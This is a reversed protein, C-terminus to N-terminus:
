FLDEDTDDGGRRVRATGRSTGPLRRPLPTPAAPPGNMAGGLDIGRAAAFSRRVTARDLRGVETRPLREVILYDVPRKFPPLGAAIVFETLDGATPRTGPRAVLAAVVQQGGRGPLSVVAADAVHPHTALVDEVERPYVTFGAVTITEAARDVLHLEGADDLYGIDATRFWGDEDPGGSGDPWYGSFLTRGRVEIPGLGGGPDAVEVLDTIGDLIELSPAPRDAAPHEEDGEDAGESPDEEEADATHGSAEAREAAEVHTATVAATRDTDITNGGADAPPVEIGAEEQMLHNDIRLEVGPYPLGVSGPRPAATMLTSTIAGAAESIGYGERVAQGTAARIASFDLPDLPSSGSTMLRVTGLGREFGAVRDFQRYLTPEAPLMSVRHQRVAAIAAEVRSPHAEDDPVVVAAGALAAPLFATVLGVVHFLPLVQLVRDAERLGVPPAGAVSLAGAVIARHSLMVPPAPRSGRALLALDEGAARAPDPAPRHAADGADGAAPAQTVAGGAVEGDAPWWTAVQAASLATAGRAEAGIVIRAGVREAVWAIDTTRPDVPVAVLGARFTAFLGAALELGTPLAIVVRAGRATAATDAATVAPDADAAVLAALEAAGRTVARDLESWTRVGWRGILAPGRSASMAAARIVDAM